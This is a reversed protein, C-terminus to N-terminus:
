MGIYRHKFYASVLLARRTLVSTISSALLSTMVLPVSSSTVNPVFYQLAVKVVVLIMWVWIGAATTQVGISDGADHITMLRFRLVGIGIGICGAAIIVARSLFSVNVWERYLLSETFWLMLIPVIWITLINLRRQRHQRAALVM